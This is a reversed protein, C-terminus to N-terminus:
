IESMKITIGWMKNQGVGAYKPVFDDFRVQLDVNHMYDHYTFAVVKGHDDWFQKLILYDAHPLGIFGTQVQRRKARTTRSRRFEYGGDTPAALTNDIPQNDYLSPSEGQSLAPKTPFTSTM